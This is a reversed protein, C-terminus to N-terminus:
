SPKRAARPNRRRQCAATHARAAVPLPVDDMRYVTGRHKIGYTATSFAVTAHRMTPTDRSDLAVYPISQWISALRSPFTASRITAARDARRRGRRAALMEVATYEGPNFRPYGRSLNVAFPFGTRWAVVNDAGTVNGAERMPRAVFRTYANM